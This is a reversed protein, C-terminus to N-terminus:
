DLKKLFNHLLEEEREMITLIEQIVYNILQQKKSLVYKLQVQKIRSVDKVLGSFGDILYSADTFIGEKQLYRLRNVMCSKHELIIHIPRIDERFSEVLTLRNCLEKYIGLGYTAGPPNYTLFSNTSHIFDSIYTKIVALNLSPDSNSYDLSTTCDFFGVGGISSNHFAKEIEEFSAQIRSFNGSRNFGLILFCEEEKDFGYILSQHTFHSIQYSPKCSLYYEDMLIEVYRGNKICNIIFPVINFHM